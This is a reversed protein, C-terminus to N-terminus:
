TWCVRSVDENGVGADVPRALITGLHGSQDFSRIEGESWHRSAIIDKLIGKLRQYGRITRQLRRRFKRKIQRSRGSFYIDYRGSNQRLM